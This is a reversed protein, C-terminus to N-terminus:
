IQHYDEREMSKAELKKERTSVGKLLAGQPSRRMQRRWLKSGDHKGTLMNFHTNFHLSFVSPVFFFWIYVTFEISKGSCTTIFIGHFIFYGFWVLACRFQISSGIYIILSFPMLIHAEVIVCVCFAEILLIVFLWCSNRSSVNCCCCCDLVRNYFAM